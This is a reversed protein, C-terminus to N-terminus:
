KKKIVRSVVPDVRESVSKGEVVSKRDLPLYTYGAPYGFHSFRLRFSIEKGPWPPALQPGNRRRLAPLDCVPAHKFRPQAFQFLTIGISFRNGPRRMPAAIAEFGIGKFKPLTAIAPEVIAQAIRSAM